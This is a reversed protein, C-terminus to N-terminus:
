GERHYKTGYETVYVVASNDATAKAAVPAPAVSAKEYAGGGCAVLLIAAACLAMVTAAVHLQKGKM